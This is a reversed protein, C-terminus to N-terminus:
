DTRWYYIKDFALNWLKKNSFKPWWLYSPDLFHARVSFCYIKLCLFELEVDNELFMYMPMPSVPFDHFIILISRSKENRVSEQVFKIFTNLKDIYCRLLTWDFRSSKILEYSRAKYNPKLKHDRLMGLDILRM